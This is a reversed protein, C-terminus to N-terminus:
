RKILHCSNCNERFIHPIEPPDDFKINNKLSHCQLCNDENIYILHGKIRSLKPPIKGNVLILPNRASNIDKRHNKQNYFFLFLVFFVFFVVYIISKTKVTL